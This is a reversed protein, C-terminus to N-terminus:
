KGIRVGPRGSEDAKWNSNASFQIDSTSSPTANTFISGKNGNSPSLYKSVIRRTTPNFFVFYARIVALVIENLRRREFRAREYMM